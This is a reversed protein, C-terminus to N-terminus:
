WKNPTDLLRFVMKNHITWASMANDIDQKLLCLLIGKALEAEEYTCFVKAPLLQSNPFNGRVLKITYEPEEQFVTQKTEIVTLVIKTPKKKM